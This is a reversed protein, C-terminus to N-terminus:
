FLCSMSKISSCLICADVLTSWPAVRHKPSTAGRTCNRGWFYGKSHRPSVSICVLLDWATPQHFKHQLCMKRLKPSWKLCEDINARSAKRLSRFSFLFRTIRVATGTFVTNQIHHLTTHYNTVLGEISVWAEMMMLTADCVAIGLPFILLIHSLHIM